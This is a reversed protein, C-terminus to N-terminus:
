KLPPGGDGAIVTSPFGSLANKAQKKKGKKVIKTAILILM